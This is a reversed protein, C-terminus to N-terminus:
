LDPASPRESATSRGADPPWKPPTETAPISILRLGPRPAGGMLAVIREQEERTAQGWLYSRRRSASADTSPDLRHRALYAPLMLAVLCLWAALGGREVAIGHLAALEGLVRRLRGFANDRAHERTQLQSERLQRLRPPPCSVAAQIAVWRPDTPARRKRTACGEVIWRRAHTQYSWVAALADARTLTFPDRLDYVEGTDADAFELGPGRLQLEVRQVDREPDYGPSQGWVPEYDARSRHRRTALELSKLYLLFSVPSSRQGIRLSVSAADLGIVYRLGRGTFRFADGMKWALGHTDVAIPVLMVGWGHRRAQELAISKGALWAALTGIWRAAITAYGERLLAPAGLRLDVTGRALCVSIKVEGEVEVTVRGSQLQRCTASREGHESPMPLPELTSKPGVRALLERIEVTPALKPIRWRLRVGGDITPPCLIVM